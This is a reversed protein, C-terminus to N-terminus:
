LTFVTEAIVLDSTVLLEEGREAKLLLNFSASAKQEDEGTLYRLLINTDLFRVM